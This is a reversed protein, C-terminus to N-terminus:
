HFRTPRSGVVLGGRDEKGSPTCCHHHHQRTLPGMSSPSVYKRLTGMPPPPVALEGYLYASERWGSPVIITTHSKPALESSPDYGQLVPPQQM